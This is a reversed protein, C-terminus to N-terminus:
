RGNKNQNDIKKEREFYIPGIIIFDVETVSLYNVIIICIHIDILHLSKLQLKHNYSLITQFM